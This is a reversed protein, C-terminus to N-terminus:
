KNCILNVGLCIRFMLTSFKSIKILFNAIGTLQKPLRFFHCNKIKLRNKFNKFMFKM